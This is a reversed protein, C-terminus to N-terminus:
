WLVPAATSSATSHLEVGGQRGRGRGVQAGLDGRAVMIGDSAAIIADLQALCDYAELKAILEVTRGPTRTEIYSRPTM